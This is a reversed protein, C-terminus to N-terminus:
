SSSGSASSESASPESAEAAAPASNTGKRSAVWEEYHKACLGRQAQPQTCKEEHCTKYRGKRSLEGRRWKKFHVNCYGKARYARKCGEVECRQEESM